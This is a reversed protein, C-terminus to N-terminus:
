PTTGAEVAPAAEVVFLEGLQLLPTNLNSKLKGITSASKLKFVAQAPIVVVIFLVLVALGTAVGSASTTYTTVTALPGHASVALTFTRTFTTCLGTTIGLANEGFPSPM